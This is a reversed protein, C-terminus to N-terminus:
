QDSSLPTTAERDVRLRGAVIDRNPASYYPSKTAASWTYGAIRGDSAAYLRMEGRGIGGALRGDSKRRTDNPGHGSASSDIVIVLYQATGPKLPKVSTMVHPEEAVVMVHGTDEVGNSSVHKDTYKVALIDGPRLAKVHVIRLFRKHDVIADHYAFAMPDTTDLWMKIDQDNWGYTHELLLTIFSSCVTRASIHGTEWEIHRKGGGYVNEDAGKIDEVLQMAQLLHAPQLNQEGQQALGCVTLFVLCSLVIHRVINIKPLPNQMDQRGAKARQEIM